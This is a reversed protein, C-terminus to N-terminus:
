STMYRATNLNTYCFTVYGLVRRMDHVTLQAEYCKQFKKKEFTIIQRTM